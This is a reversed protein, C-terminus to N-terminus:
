LVLLQLLFGVLLLGVLVAVRAEATTTEAAAVAVAL